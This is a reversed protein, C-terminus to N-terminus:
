GLKDCIGSKTNIKLKVIFKTPQIGRFMNRYNYYMQTFPQKVVRISWIHISTNTM